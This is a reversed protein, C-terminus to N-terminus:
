QNTGALRCRYTFEHILFGLFLGALQAELRFRLTPDASDHQRAREGVEKEFLKELNEGEVRNRGGWGGDKRGMQYRLFNTLVVLSSGSLAANLLNRLQTPSVRSDRPKDTRPQYIQNHKLYERAALVLAPKQEEIWNLTEANM